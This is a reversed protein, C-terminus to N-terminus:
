APPRAPMETANVIADAFIACHPEHAAHRDKRSLAESWHQATLSSRIAESDTSASATPHHYNRGCGARLFARIPLHTRRQRVPRFTSWNSPANVVASLSSDVIEHENM